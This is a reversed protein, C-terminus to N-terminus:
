YVVCHTICIEPNSKNDWSKIDRLITKIDELMNVGCDPYGVFFTTRKSICNVERNIQADEWVNHIVKKISVNSERNLTIELHVWNSM